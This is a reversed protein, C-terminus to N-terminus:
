SSMSKATEATTGSEEIRWGVSAIPRVAISSSVSSTSASFGLCRATIKVGSSTTRWLVPGTVGTPRAYDPAWAWVEAPSTFAAALPEGAANAAHLVRFGGAAADDGPVDIGAVFLASTAGIRELLAERPMSPADLAAELPTNISPNETLSRPIEHSYAICATETGPDIVIGDCPETAAQCM